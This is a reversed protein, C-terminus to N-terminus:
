PCVIGGEPLKVLTLAPSYWVQPIVVVPVTAQQPEFTYPWAFGGAPLKVLTPAPSNWVQAM